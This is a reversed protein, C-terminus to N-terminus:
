PSVPKRCRLCLPRQKEQTCYFAGPLLVAVTGSAAMAHIGADDLYVLHDASLAKYSAALQAGGQNTLQEAHLKIPMGLAKAADFVRGIQATTFGITQCFGDVAHALGEAYIKPLMTRCVSDIYRDASAADTPTTHAGSFTTRVTVPREAGLACAARLQRCEAELELGYGSKIEVTTVGEALMADLRLLAEATLQAQSM